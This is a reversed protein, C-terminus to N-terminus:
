LDITLVEVFHFFCCFCFVLLFLVSAESYKGNCPLHKVFLILVVQFKENFVEWDKVLVQLQEKVSTSISQKTQFDSFLKVAETAKNVLLQGAKINTKFKGLM